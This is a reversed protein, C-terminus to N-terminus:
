EVTGTMTPGTVIVQHGEMQAATYKCLPSVKWPVPPNFPPPPDGDTPQEHTDSILYTEFNFSPYTLAIGGNAQTVKVPGSAGGDCGDDESNQAIRNFWPDSVIFSVSLGGFHPILPPPANPPPDLQRQTENRDLAHPMGTWLIREQVWILTSADYQGNKGSWRGDGNTDVYREGPDWTGNDNNDVFPETTDEFPEGPDWVGNNNLDDFAEEGSTIAILSVLNDRPNNVINPRIPDPRRPEPRDVQPQAANGYGAIPNEDWLFPHMWLPALYEGTHTADNLPNWTFTGPEVDQPLPLSTKYLVEANGVVDTVSVASPGITGAETLFSVQAGVVGDGNRDGVHAICKLKVGAILNRTEDWAGVAHHLGSGNGSFSGCQFTFQRSSSNAGAFSVVPSVARKMEGGSGATAVVVASAVRGGRAVVQVSVIGDGANTVGESPSLEVGPVPSELTFSVQTGAQPQGRSDVARFRLTTIEGLRPQAPSQDVFELTAPVSPSCAVFLLSAFAVWPALGPRM